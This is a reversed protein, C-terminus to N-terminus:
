KKLLTQNVFDLKNAISELSKELMNFMRTEYEKRTECVSITVCNKLSEAFAMYRRDVDDRMDRFQIVVNTLDAEGLARTVRLKEEFTKELADTRADFNGELDKFRNSILRWVVGLLVLLQGLLALMFKAIDLYNELM